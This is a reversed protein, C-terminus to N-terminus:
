RALDVTQNCIDIFRYFRDKNSIMNPRTSLENFLFKLIESSVAETEKSQHLVWFLLCYYFDMHKHYGPKGIFGKLLKNVEEICYKRMGM